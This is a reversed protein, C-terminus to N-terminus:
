RGDAPGSGEDVCQRAEDLYEEDIIMPRRNLVAYERECRRILDVLAQMQEPDM